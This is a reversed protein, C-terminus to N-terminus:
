IGGTMLGVAVGIAMLCGAILAAGAFLKLLLM